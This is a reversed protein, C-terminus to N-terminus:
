RLPALPSGETLENPPLAYYGKRTQVRLGSPRVKVQLKRFSANRASSAPAFGISYQSRMEEEIVQFIRALPLKKNAQFMRGGAPEALNKLYSCGSYAGGFCIGYVV